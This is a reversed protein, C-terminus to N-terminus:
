HIFWIFYFQTDCHFSRCPVHRCKVRKDVTIHLHCLWFWLWSWVYKDLNMHTVKSCTSWIFWCIVNGKVLFLTQSQELSNMRSFIFRPTLFGWITKLGDIKLRIPIENGLRHFLSVHHSLVWKGLTGLLWLCLCSFQQSCKVGHKPKKKKGVKHFIQWLVCVPTDDCLVFKLWNNASYNPFIHNPCRYVTSVIDHAHSMGTGSM